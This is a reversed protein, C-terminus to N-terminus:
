DSEKAGGSGSVHGSGQKKVVNHEHEHLKEIEVSLERLGAVLKNQDSESMWPTSSTTTSGEPNQTNSSQNNSQTQNQSPQGGKTDNPKLTSSASQQSSKSPTTQSAPPPVEKSCSARDDATIGSALDFHLRALREQKARIAEM